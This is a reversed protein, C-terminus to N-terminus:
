SGEVLSERRNFPDLLKQSKTVSLLHDKRESGLLPPNGELQGQALYGGGGAAEEMISPLLSTFGLPLLLYHIFILVHSIYSFIFKLNLHLSKNNKRRTKNGSPPPPHRCIIEPELSSRSRLASLRDSVDSSWPHLFCAAMIFRLNRWRGCVVM